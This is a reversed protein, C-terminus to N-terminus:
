YNQPNSCKIAGVKGGDYKNPKGGGFLNLKTKKSTKKGTDLQIMQLYKFNRYVYENEELVLGNIFIEVNNFKEYESINSLPSEKANSKWYKEDINNNKYYQIYKDEVEYPSKPGSTGDGNEGSADIKIISDDIKKTPNECGLSYELKSIIDKINNARLLSGEEWTVNEFDGTNRLTNSSTKILIENVNYYCNLVKQLSDRLEENKLIVASNNKFTEELGKINTTVLSTDVKVIKEKDIQSIDRRDTDFQKDATTLINYKYKWMDSLDNIRSSIESTIKKQADDDLSVLKEFMPEDREHGRTKLIKILENLIEMHSFKDDQVNEIKDKPIGASMLDNASVINNSLLSSILATTMLGKKAYKKLVDVVAENLQHSENLYLDYKRIENVIDNYIKETQKKTTLYKYQEETIYYKKM